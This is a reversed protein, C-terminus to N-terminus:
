VQQLAHHEYLQLQTNININTDTSFLHYSILSHKFGFTVTKLVNNGHRYDNQRLITETFCTSHLYWYTSITKILCLIELKVTLKSFQRVM